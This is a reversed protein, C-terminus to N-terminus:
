LKLVDQLKVIGELNHMNGRNVVPLVDLQSAGHSGAGHEIFSGCTSASIRRNKFDGTFTEGTAGETLAEQLQGLSVMAIVGRDDCQRGRPLKSAAVKELAEQITLARM